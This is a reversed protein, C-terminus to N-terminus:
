APLLGEKQAQKISYAEITGDDHEVIVVPKNIVDARKEGVSRLMPYSGIGIVKSM